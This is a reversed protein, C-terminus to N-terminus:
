DDRLEEELMRRLEKFLDASTEDFLKQLCLVGVEKSGVTATIAIMPELLDEMFEISLEVQWSSFFEFDEEAFDQKPLLVEKMPYEPNYVKVPVVNDLM